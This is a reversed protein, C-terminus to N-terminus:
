EETPEWDWELDDFWQANSRQLDLVANLAVQARMAAGESRDRNMKNVITALDKRMQTLKNSFTEVTPSGAIVIDPPLPPPDPRTLHPPPPTPEKQSM